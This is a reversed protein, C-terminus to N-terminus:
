MPIVINLTSVVKALEGAIYPKLEEKITYPRRNYSGLGVFAGNLNVGLYIDRVHKLEEETLYDSLAELTRTLSKPDGYKIARNSMPVNSLEEEAIPEYTDRYCYTVTPDDYVCLYEIDVGKERLGEMIKNYKTPTLKPVGAVNDAKKGRLVKKLLVTNYDMDLNKFDGLSSVVETYNFPTVQIYNKLVQSKEEAYTTKKSRIFVSVQDDVLPLLDQDGTIIDIYHDPYTEKAKKVAALVLDDAEYNTERLCMVGAAKLYSYTLNIGEYFLGGVHNRGAKYGTDKGTDETIGRLSDFYFKKSRTAGYCDFCVILPHKGKETLRHLAKITYSPITTDVQAPSGDLMLTTSMSQVGGFAYRYAIHQFDVIKVRGKKEKM